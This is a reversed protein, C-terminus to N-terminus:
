ENQSKNLKVWKTVERYKMLKKGRKRIDMYRESLEISNLNSFKFLNRLRLSRKVIRKIADLRVM